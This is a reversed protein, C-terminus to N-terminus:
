SILEIDFIVYLNIGEKRIRVQHYENALKPSYRQFSRCLTKRWKERHLPLPENSKCIFENIFKKLVEIDIYISSWLM